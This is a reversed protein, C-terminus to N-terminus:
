QNDLSVDVLFGHTKLFKRGILMQYRMTSRDSLTITMPYHKGEIVIDTNFAFRDTAQGNSSKVSRRHYKEVSVLGHMSGYPRFQLQRKRGEGKFEKIDQAHLSGSFAGTDVKAVIKSIGLQPISVDMISGVTPVTEDNNKSLWDFNM